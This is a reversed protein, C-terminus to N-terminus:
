SFTVVTVTPRDYESLDNTPLPAAIGSLMGVGLMAKMGLDSQNNQAGAATQIQVQYSSQNPREAQTYM